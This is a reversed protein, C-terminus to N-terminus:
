SSSGTARCMMTPIGSGLSIPPTHLKLSLQPTGKTKQDLLCSIPRHRLLGHPLSPLLKGQGPM